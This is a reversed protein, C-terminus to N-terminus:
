HADNQKLKRKSPRRTAPNGPRDLMRRPEGMKARIYEHLSKTPIRRKGNDLYSEIENTRILAYLKSLGVRLLQCAEKPPVVLPEIPAAIRTRSPSATSPQSM